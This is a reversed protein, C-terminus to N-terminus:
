RTWRDHQLAELRRAKFDHPSWGFLFRYTWADGSLDSGGGTRHNTDELRAELGLFQRGSQGLYLRYGTGASLNLSSLWRADPDGFEDVYEDGPLAQIAEYGAGLFLELGHHRTRLLQLGVDVGVYAGFFNDTWVLEDQHRVAYYDAASGLRVEGTVRALWRRARVGIQGGLLPQAGLVGLNGRPDWLGGYLVFEVDTIRSYAAVDANYAARLATGAFRDEQIERFLSIDDGAYYLCLLYEVSGPEIAELLQDALDETFQDYGALEPLEEIDGAFNYGYEWLSYNRQVLPLRRQRYWLLDHIIDEGLIGEGFRGDWIAALIRTRVIPEATGCKGEWYDLLEFLSDPKDEYFFRPVLDFCNLSVDACTLYQRHMYDDFSRETDQGAVPPAAGTILLILGAVAAMLAARLPAIRAAPRVPSCPRALPHRACLANVRTFRRIM